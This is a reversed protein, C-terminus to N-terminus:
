QHRIQVQVILRDSTTDSVNTVYVSQPPEGQEPRSIKKIKIDRGQLASVRRIADDLRNDASLVATGAAPLTPAPPPQKGPGSKIAEHLDSIDEPNRSLVIFFREDGPPDEIELCYNQPVLVTTYSRVINAEDPMGPSPLLPQWAKSSGQEVVYLYGSRNPFFEIQLCDGRHFNGDPDAPSTNGKSDVLLINYRVGLHHVAAVVPVISASENQSDPVAPPAEKPKPTAGPKGSAAADTKKASAAKATRVPPLKDNDQQERYFLERPTLSSSSDQCLCIGPLVLLTM